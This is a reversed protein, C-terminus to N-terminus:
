ANFTIRQGTIEIDKPATQFHAHKPTYYFCLEGNSIVLPYTTMYEADELYGDDDSEFDLYSSTLVSIIDGSPVAIYNPRIVEVVPAEEEKIAEPSEADRFHIKDNITILDSVLTPNIHTSVSEIINMDWQPINNKIISPLALSWYALRYLIRSEATLPFEITSCLQLNDESISDNGLNAKVYIKFTHSDPDLIVVTNKFLKNDLKKNVWDLYPRNFISCDVTISKM